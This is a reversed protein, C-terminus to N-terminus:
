FSSDSEDLYEQLILTASLANLDRRSKRPKGAEIAKELAQRTTLIESRFTVPVNLEKEIRGGLERVKEQHKGEPLGLVVKGVGEKEIIEKLEDFSGVVGFPEAFSTESIALGIKKEGWDVGLTVM